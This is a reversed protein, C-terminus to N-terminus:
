FEQAASKLANMAEVVQQIAIAQQEANLSIQQTNVVVDNVADKVGRFAIATTEAIQVGSEVTTSSNKTVKETSNIANQIESVLGQIKAASNRSRDALKRIESAVVSFGRGSNGARVAEVAANLALMNTQNALESVMESIKAIEDTQQSLNRIQRAIASVTEKLNAMGTLTEEVAQTGQHALNLAETAGAAAGTAQQASLQSSARLEEMQALVREIRKRENIEVQLAATKEQVEATKEEIERQLEDAQLIVKGTLPRLLLVMGGTGLAILLAIAAAIWLMQSNISGYLEDRNVKIAIGWDTGQIPGFAIAAPNNAFEENSLIGAEQRTAKILASNLATRMVDSSQLPNTELNEQSFFLNMEGNKFAALFIKGTQGLSTNNQIIQRLKESKFLM